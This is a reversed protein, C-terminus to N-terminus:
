SRPARRLGAGNESGTRLQAEREKMATRGESLADRARAAAAGAVGAPRYRTAAAKLRKQLWVSGGVGLAAGATLWRLRKLM